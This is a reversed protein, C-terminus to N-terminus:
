GENKEHLYSIELITFQTINIQSDYRTNAHLVQWDEHRHLKPSLCKDGRGDVIFHFCQAFLLTSVSLLCYLPFVSCVIFHFCQALSGLSECLTTTIKYLQKTYRFEQVIDNVKSTVKSWDVKFTCANSSLAPLGTTSDHKLSCLGGRGFSSHERCLIIGPLPTKDRLTTRSPGVLTRRM